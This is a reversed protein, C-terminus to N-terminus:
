RAVVRIASNDTDAIFVNGDTDVAVGLPNSLEASTAPGGDGSYGVDGNGAFTTIKGTSADVRRIASNGSDAIYVNGEADVAIGSLSSFTAETAIGGDGSYGPEGTGAITTILGNSIKRIVNNGSDSIYINGLVDIAIGKPGNLTASTAVGNDGTYGPYDPGKGAITTIKGTAKEVMRVVHNGSEALFLNGAKDTAISYPNFLTANIALGGDGTYGQVKTGVVTSIWGDASSIKRVVNNGADIIFVNDSEDVAISLPVYLHASSAPGGDGSFPTPDIVNFGLFKGSITAIMGDTANIRRVTNSAGDTIYVNNSVDTAIATIWGIKAETALGGDGTYDFAAPGMGAITEITGSTVPMNIGGAPDVPDEGCAQLVLLALAPLTNSLYRNRM